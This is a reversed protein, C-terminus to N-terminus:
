LERWNPQIELKSIGGNFSIINEGEKFVPFDGVMNRGAPLKDKHAIQLRSDITLYGNINTLRLVKDNISIEGTGNGFVKIVPESYISGINNLKKTGLAELIYQGKNFYFFPEVKFAVNILNTTGNYQGVYDRDIVNIVDAYFFGNEDESTRLIGSGSLWKHIKQYNDKKYNVFQFSRTYSKYTGLRDVISGSRGEVEYEIIHEEARKRQEFETVILNFKKNTIGNYEITVM